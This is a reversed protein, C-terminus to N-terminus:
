VAEEVRDCRYKHFRRDDDDDDSEVEVLLRSKKDYTVTTNQSAMLLRARCYGEFTQLNYKSADDLAISFRKSQVYQYARVTDYQRYYIMYAICAIASSDNGTECFVLASVNNAQAFDIADNIKPFEQVLAASNTLSDGPDFSFCRYNASESYRHKLLAVTAKGRLVSILVHINNEILFEENRLLGMPGLWLHPLLQQAEKRKDYKWDSLVSPDNIFCPPILIRPLSTVKHLTKVSSSTAIMNM